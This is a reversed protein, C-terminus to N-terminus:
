SKPSILAPSIRNKASSTITPCSGSSNTAAEVLREHQFGLSTSWLGAMGEIYQKGNNDWVYVGEGREIIMPGQEEIARFNTYPHVLYAVDRAEPSNPQIPM